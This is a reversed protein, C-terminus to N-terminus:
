PARYEDFALGVVRTTNPTSGTTSPISHHSQADGMRALKPVTGNHHAIDEVKTTERMRKISGKKTWPIASKRPRNAFSAAKPPATAPGSEGSTGSTPPAPPIVDGGKNNQHDEDDDEM